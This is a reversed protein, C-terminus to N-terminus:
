QSLCNGNFIPSSINQRLHGESGTIRGMEGARLLSTEARAEGWPKSRCIVNEVEARRTGHWNGLFKRMAAPPYAHILRM